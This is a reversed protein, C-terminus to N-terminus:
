SQPSEPFWQRDKTMRAAWCAFWCLFLYLLLWPWFHFTFVTAMAAVTGVAVVLTPIWVRQLWWYLGFPIVLSLLPIVGAIWVMAHDPVM